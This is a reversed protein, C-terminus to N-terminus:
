ILRKWNQSEEPILFRVVIERKEAFSKLTYELDDIESKSATNLFDPDVMKYEPLDKVNAM